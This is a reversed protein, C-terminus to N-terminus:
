VGAYVAKAAATASLAKGSLFKLALSPKTQAPARGYPMATLRLIQKLRLM